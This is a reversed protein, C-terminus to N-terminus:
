KGKSIKMKVNSVAMLADITGSKVVFCFQDGKKVNGDVDFVYTLCTHGPPTGVTRMWRVDKRALGIELTAPGSQEVELDAVVKLRGPTAIPPLDLSGKELNGQWVIEAKDAPAMGEWEIARGENGWFDCPTATIRIPEGAVFYASDVIDDVFGRREDPEKWFEGRRERLAFRMWEGDANRRFLDVRYHRTFRGPAEPIKVHIGDETVAVELAAGVAFQPAAHRARQAARSYRPHTPDYPWVVTWPEDGGIEAGTALAYRRFVAHDAFLEMVLVSRNRGTPNVCGAYAESFYTLCGASVSTFVGQHINQENRLSGHAHGTIHIVQPYRSLVKMRRVDGWRGSNETTGKCPVHDFVFVPKGPSAKCAAGIMDAYRKYDLYQPVVLFRFGAYTREDYAEHPIKLMGKVVDYKGVGKKDDLGIRDHGAWVWIEDPANKVDPFVRRRVACMKAYWEPDFRNAIDGCNVVLRAGKDRFLRWAREVHDTPERGFHTDTVIGVRM